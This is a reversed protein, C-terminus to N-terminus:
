PTVGGDWVHKAAHDWVPQPDVNVQISLDGEEDVHQVFDIRLEVHEFCEPCAVTPANIKRREDSRIKDIYDCNCPIEREVNMFDNWKEPRYYCFPDHKM